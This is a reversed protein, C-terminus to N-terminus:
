NSLRTQSKKSAMSQLGVLEETWSIEWALMSFRTAMESELPDEWGLSQFQTEQQAPLNRVVSGGPFGLYLLYLMVIAKLPAATNGRIFVM